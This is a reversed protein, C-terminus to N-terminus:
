KQLSEWSDTKTSRYAADIIKNVQYGEEFTELAREGTSICSLFHKLEDVFGLTRQESMAPFIRGRKTEVLETAAEGTAPIRTSTEATFFSTGAERSITSYLNGNGGYVEIRLDLGGRTVWSSEVQSLESGEHKVLVVANDEALTAHVLRSAWGLVSIPKKGMLYRAVELTHVGLDLLVGGGALDPEWFWSSHQTLHAERCRIWFVQGLVGRAILEKVRAIQPMFIQNEGYFHLVGSKKALDLMQKAELENRSLPKECFINKHNEAAAMAATLHMNNPLAIDVLEVEPDACLKHIGDEGHFIRPVSWRHAFEEAIEKRRSFVSVVQAEEIERLAPMHFANAVFGAGLIGIKVSKM